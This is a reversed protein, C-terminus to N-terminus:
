FRIRGLHQRGLASPMATDAKSGQQALLLSHNKDPFNGLHSPSVGGRFGVAM